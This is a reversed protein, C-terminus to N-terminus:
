FSYGLAIGISNGITESGLIYVADVRIGAFKFGAGVSAFSPLVSQGGYRYGARLSVMDNFTYSAGASVGAAGNLYYKLDANVDIRHRDASNLCYGVGLGAAAPLKFKQGSASTVGTGLESIGAAVKFGGFAAMLTVDAAVAGYSTGEALSSSAYGVNAGLSLFPLFRYSLGASVQMDAPTFQGKLSGQNDYIDYSPNMGYTFGLAIGFKDKVNYAGAVNIINSKVSEPAWITYGASIDMSNESFPIAAANRFASNAVASTETLSAGGKALTVPDYDVATFPLAQAACLAPLAALFIIATTKIMRNM